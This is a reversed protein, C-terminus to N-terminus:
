STPFILASFYFMTKPLKRAIKAANDWPINKSSKVSSVAVTGGIKKIVIIAAEAPNNKPTNPSAKKGVKNVKLKSQCM